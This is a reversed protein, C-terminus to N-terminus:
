HAKNALKMKQLELEQQVDERRTALRMKELEIEQERIDREDSRDAYWVQIAYVATITVMFAIVVETM